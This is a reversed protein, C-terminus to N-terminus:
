SLLAWRGVLGVVLLLLIAAVLLIIVLCSRGASDVESPDIPLTEAPEEEPAPARQGDSM